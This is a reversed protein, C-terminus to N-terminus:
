VMMAAAAGLLAPFVVVLIFVRIMGADQLMRVISCKTGTPFENCEYATGIRNGSQDRIGFHSGKGDTDCSGGLWRVGKKLERSGWSRRKDLLQEAKRQKKSM